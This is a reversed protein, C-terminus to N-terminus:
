GRGGLPEVGRDDESLEALLNAEGFVFPEAVGPVRPRHCGLPHGLPEPLLREITTYIADMVEPELARM